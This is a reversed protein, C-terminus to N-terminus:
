AITLLKDYVFTRAKKVNRGVSSYQTTITLRYKGAKVTPPVIFEVESPNNRVVLNAPVPIAPPKDKGDDGVNTLTIGNAPLEGQIRIRKGSVIVPRNIVAKDDHIGTLPDYVDTIRPGTSARGDVDIPIASLVENVLDAPRFRVSLWQEGKTLSVENERFGGRVTPTLRGMGILNVAYGEKLRKAAADRFLNACAVLTAYKIDSGGDAIDKALDEVDAYGRASFRGLFPNKASGLTSDYLKVSLKGTASNGTYDM